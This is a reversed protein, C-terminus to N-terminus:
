RHDIMVPHTPGTGPRSMKKPYKKRVYKMIEKLGKVDSNSLASQTALLLQVAENEKSVAQNREEDLTRVHLLAEEAREILELQSGKGKGAPRSLAEKLQAEAKEARAILALQAEEAQKVRSLQRTRSQKILEDVAARKREAEAARAAEAAEAANIRDTRAAQAAKRGEKAAEARAEEARAAEERAVEATERVHKQEIRSSIDPPLSINKILEAAKIKPDGLLHSPLIGGNIQQVIDNPPLLEDEPLIIDIAQESLQNLRTELDNGPMYDRFLYDLTDAYETALDSPSPIDLYILIIALLKDKVNFPNVDLTLHRNAPLKIKDHGVKTIESSILIFLLSNIIKIDEILINKEIEVAITIAPDHTGMSDNVTRYVDSGSIHSKDPIPNDPPALRTVALPTAASALPQGPRVLMLRPPQPNDYKKLLDTRKKKLINLIDIHEKNLNFRYHNNNIDTSIINEKYKEILMGWPKGDENYTRIGGQIQRIAARNMDRTNQSAM